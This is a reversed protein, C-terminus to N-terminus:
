KSVPTQKPLARKVTRDLISPDYRRLERCIMQLAEGEAIKEGDGLHAYTKSAITALREVVIQAGIAEVKKDDGKGAMDMVEREYDRKMRNATAPRIEVKFARIVQATSIVPILEQPLSRLIVAFRAIETEREPKLRGKNL